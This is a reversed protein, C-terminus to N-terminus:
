RLIGMKSYAWDPGVPANSIIEVQQSGDGKMTWIGWSGSRASRFVLDGNPLYLPLTDHGPTDTLRILNSGDMNVTYIDVNGGEDRSFAITQGDSSWSPFSDSGGETLRIHGSDDRNSVWLGTQNNRGSRYVVQQSDPSWDAQEGIIEIHFQQNAETGLFYIRRSGSRNGDFAVMSGDPSINASRASGDNWGNDQFLRIQQVSAPPPSIDMRILGNTAGPLPYVRGAVVQQDVGQEGYFFLYKGDRSWAPGAARGLLYQERSGNTDGIFLNHKEGDWKTYALRFVKKIEPTTAVSIIEATESAAEVIFSGAALMEGDIYFELAWQGAPLPDGGASIVYDYTGVEGELWPQSARSVEDGNHYWVQTWIQTPLLHAYDFLAHVRSVGAEFSFGPELPEGQPSAGLAFILPSIEPGDASDKQSSQDIQATASKSSAQTPKAIPIESATPKAPSGPEIVDGVIQEPTDRQARQLMFFSGGAVLSLCLLFVCGLGGVLVMTTGKPTSKSESIDVPANDSM